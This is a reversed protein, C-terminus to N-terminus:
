NYYQRFFAHFGRSMTRGGPLPWASVRGGLRPGSEVLVVDVGREALVAAANLGAIGGGIVTVSKPRM